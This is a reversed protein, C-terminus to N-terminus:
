CGWIVRHCSPCICAMGQRRGFVSCSPCRDPNASDECYEADKQGSHAVAVELAPTPGLLLATCAGNLVIRLNEDLAVTVVVGHCHFGLIQDFGLASLAATTGYQTSCLYLGPAKAQKDSPDPLFSAWVHRDIEGAQILIEIFQCAAKTFRVPECCLWLYKDLLDVTKTPM